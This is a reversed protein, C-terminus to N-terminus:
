NCTNITGLDLRPHQPQPRPRICYLTKWGLSVTPRTLLVIGPGKKPQRSAGLVGAIAPAILYAEVELWDTPDGRSCKSHSNNLLQLTVGQLGDVAMMLEPGKRHGIRGLM